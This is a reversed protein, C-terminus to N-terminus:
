RDSRGFSSSTYYHGPIKGIAKGMIHQGPVWEFDPSNDSREGKRRVAHGWEISISAPDTALVIRDRVGKKGKTSEWKLHRIYSGTLRHREAEAVALAYLKAAVQDMIPDEGAMRAVIVGINKVVYAM